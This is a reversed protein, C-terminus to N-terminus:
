TGQDDRDGLSEKLWTDLLGNRSDREIQKDCIWKCLRPLKCRLVCVDIWVILNLIM